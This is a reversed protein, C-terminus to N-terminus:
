NYFFLLRVGVFTSLTRSNVEALRVSVLIFDDGNGTGPNYTFGGLAPAVSSAASGPTSRLFPTLTFFSAYNLNNGILSGVSIGNSARPFQSINIISSDIQDATIEAIGNYEYVKKYDQSSNGSLSNYLNRLEIYEPSGIVYDSSVIIGNTTQLINQYANSKTIGQQNNSYIVGAKLVGTRVDGYIANNGSIDGVVTANGAVDTRVVNFNNFPITQTGNQTELILLDSDSALQAQPLDTINLGNSNTPTTAM